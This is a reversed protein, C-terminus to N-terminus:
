NQKDHGFVRGSELGSRKLISVFGGPVFFDNDNDHTGAGMSEIRCHNRAKRHFRGTTREASLKQASFFDRQIKIKEGRPKVARTKPIIRNCQTLERGSHASIRL